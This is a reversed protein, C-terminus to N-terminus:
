EGGRDLLGPVKQRYSLSLDIVGPPALNKTLYLQPHAKLVRGYEGFRGLDPSTRQAEMGSAIVRVDFGTPLAVVWEVSGTTLAVEPLTLGASGLFGLPTLPYALRFSLRHATPQSPRPALRLRCWRDEISPAEVEVGNVSASILRAGVPLRLRFEGTQFAPLEFEAFHTCSGDSNIVTLHQAHSLGIGYFGEDGPRNPGPGAETADRWDLILRDEGAVGIEYRTGTEL